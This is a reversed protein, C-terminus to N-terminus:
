QFNDFSLVGWGGWVVFKPVGCTCPEIIAQKLLARDPELCAFQTVIGSETDVVEFAIPSARM